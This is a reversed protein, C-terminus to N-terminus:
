HHPLREACERWRDGEHRNIIHLLEQREEPLGCLSEHHTRDGCYGCRQGQGCRERCRPKLCVRCMEEEKVLARRERVAPFVTCADTAHKGRQRCFGCVVMRAGSTCLTNRSDAIKRQRCERLGKLKTKAQSVAFPTRDRAPRAIKPPIEERELEERDKRSKRSHSSTSGQRLEDPTSTKSEVERKPPILEMKMVDADDELLTLVDEPPPTRQREEMTRLYSAVANTLCDETKIFSEETLTRFQKANQDLKEQVQQNINKLSNEIKKEMKKQFSEMSTLIRENRADEEEKWSTIKGDIKTVMEKIRKTFKEMKGNTEESASPRADMRSTDGEEMFLHNIQQELRKIHDMLSDQENRAWPTYHVNRIETITNAISRLESTVYVKTSIKDFPRGSEQIKMQFQEKKPLTAMKARVMEDYTDWLLDSIYGACQLKGQLETLQKDVNRRKNYSKLPTRPTTAIATEVERYAALTEESKKLLHDIGYNVGLIQEQLMKDSIIARPRVALQQLLKKVDDLQSEMKTSVLHLGSPLKVKKQEMVDWLYDCGLLIQQTEEEENSKNSLQIRKQKVVRLDEKTLTAKVAHATIVPSDYLQFAHVEKNKDVLNVEVVSHWNEVVKNSGFMKLGLKKRSITPLQLEEVLNRDVFSSEAGTDLLIKVERSGNKGLITATGTLLLTEGTSVEGTTNDEINEDESDVIVNTEKQIVMNQHNVPTGKTAKKSYASGTNRAPLRTQQQFAPQAPKTKSQRGEQPIQKGHQTDIIGCLSINHKKGCNRCPPSRCMEATHYPKGCNLCLGKKTLFSIRESQTVVRCNTSQHGLRRCYMCAIKFDRVPQSPRSISSEAPVNIKKRTEEVYERRQLIGSLERQMTAWTWDRPNQLDARRELARTEKKRGSLKICFQNAESISEIGTELYEEFSSLETEQKTEGLMEFVVHLKDISENVYDKATRVKALTSEIRTRSTKLSEMKDAEEGEPIVIPAIADQSDQIVEQLANRAKTLRSKCVKLM